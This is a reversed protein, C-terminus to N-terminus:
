EKTLEVQDIWATDAGASVSGNKEYRWEFSTTGPWLIPFSVQQWDIEGSVREQPVGNIFFRLCDNGPESSVKRWFQIRGKQCFRRLMLGSTQSDGIVGARMSRSGAHAEGSDPQWAFSDTDSWESSLGGEFGEAFLVPIVVRIPKGAGWNQCLALLDSGNVIGDPWGTGGGSAIDCSSPDMRGWDRGLVAFDRLDVAGDGTFDGWIRKSFSLTFFAYPVGSAYSGKLDVLPLVGANKEIIKRVDWLPYEVDPHAPDYRQLTVCLSGFRFGQSASPMSIRLENATAAPFTLQYGSWTTLQLRLDVKGINGKPRCDEQLKREGENQDAPLLSFVDASRVLTTPSYTSDDADFGEKAGEMHRITVPSVQTEDFGTVHNEIQLIDPGEYEYDDSVYKWGASEDYYRAQVTYTHRRNLYDEIAARFAEYNQFDDYIVRRSCSKSNKSAINIQQGDALLTYGLTGPPVITWSVSVRYEGRLRPSGPPYTYPEYSSQFSISLDMDEGRASGGMGVALMVSIVLWQSLTRREALTNM